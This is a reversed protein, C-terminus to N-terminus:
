KLDQFCTFPLISKVNSVFSIYKLPCCILKQEEKHETGRLSHKIAQKQDMSLLKQHLKNFREPEFFRLFYGLFIPCYYLELMLLERENESSLV